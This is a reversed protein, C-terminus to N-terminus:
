AQQHGDIIDVAAKVALNIIAWRLCTDSDEFLSEPALYCSLHYEV